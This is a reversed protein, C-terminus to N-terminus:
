AIFSTKLKDASLDTPQKDNALKVWRVFRHLSVQSYRNRADSAPKMAIKALTSDDVIRGEHTDSLDPPSGKFRRPQRTRDLPV